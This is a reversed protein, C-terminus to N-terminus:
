PSVYAKVLESNLYRKERASHTSMYRSSAKAASFRPEVYPKLMLTQM